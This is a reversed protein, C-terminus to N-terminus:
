AVLDLFQGVAGYHESSSRYGASLDYCFYSATHAVEISSAVLAGRVSLHDIVRFGAHSQDCFINYVQAIRDGFPFYAEAVIELVFLEMQVQEEICLITSYPM